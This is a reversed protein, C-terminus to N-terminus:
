PRSGNSNVEVLLNFSTCIAGAFSQWVANISARCGGKVKELVSCDRQM